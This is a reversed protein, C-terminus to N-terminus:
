CNFSTVAVATAAHSLAPVKAKARGHGHRSGRQRWVAIIIYQRHETRQLRNAHAEIGVKVPWHTLKGTVTQM